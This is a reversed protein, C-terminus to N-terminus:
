IDYETTTPFQCSFVAITEVKRRVKKRTFYLLSPTIHSHSLTVYEGCHPWKLSYNQNHEQPGPFSTIFPLHHALTHRLEARENM